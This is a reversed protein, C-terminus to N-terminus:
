VMVKVQPDVVEHLREIVEDEYSNRNNNLMSKDVTKWVLPTARGHRTILYLAITCQDGADFETWDVAVLIEERGALLSKVWAEFMTWTSFKNNALLRDIQKIAHKPDKAESWAM